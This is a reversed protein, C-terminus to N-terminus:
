CLPNLDVVEDTGVIKNMHFFNRTDNVYWMCYTCYM